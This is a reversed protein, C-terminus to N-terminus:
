NIKEHQPRSKMYNKIYFNGFLVIYSSMYYIGFCIMWLPFKCDNMFLANICFLLNICFQAIQLATLSQKWGLYKKYQPGLSSVLYYSYVLVHLCANLAPGFVSNGGPVNNAAIWMLGIM